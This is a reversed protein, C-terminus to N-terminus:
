KLFIVIKKRFMYDRYINLCVEKNKTQLHKELQKPLSVVPHIFKEKPNSDAFYFNPETICLWRSDVKINSEDSFNVPKGNIIIEM